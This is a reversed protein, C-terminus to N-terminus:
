TTVASYEGVDNRGIGQARGAYGTNLINTTRYDRNAADEYTPTTETCNNAFDPTNAISDHLSQNYDQLETVSDLQVLGPDYRGIFYIGTAQTINNINDYDNYTIQSNHPTTQSDDVISWVRDAGDVNNSYVYVGDTAYSEWLWSCGIVTNEYIYAGTSQDNPNAGIPAAAATCAYSHSSDCVNRFFSNQQPPDQNSGQLNLEFAYDAFEYFLNNHVVAGNTV